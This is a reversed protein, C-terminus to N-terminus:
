HFHPLGGGALAPCRRRVAEGHAVQAFFSRIATAADTLPSFRPHELRGGSMVSGRQGGSDNPRLHGEIWRGFRGMVATRRRSSKLNWTTDELYIQGRGVGGGCELGYFFDCLVSILIVLGEPQGLTRGYEIRVFRHQTFYVM